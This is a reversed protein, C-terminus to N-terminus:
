DQAILPQYDVWCLSLSETCDSFFLYFNMDTPFTQCDTEIAESNLNEHSNKRFVITAQQNEM